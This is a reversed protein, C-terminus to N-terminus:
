VCSPKNKYLCCDAYPLQSHSQLESTHDESRERLRYHRKARLRCEPWHATKFFFHFIFFYCEPDEEGREWFANPSPGLNAYPLQCDRRPHFARDGAQSEGFIDCRALVLSLVSEMRSGQLVKLGRSSEVAACVYCVSWGWMSAAILKYIILNQFM